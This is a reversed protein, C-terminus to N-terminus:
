RKKKEVCRPLVGRLNEKEVLKDSCMGLVYIYTQTKLTLFFRM